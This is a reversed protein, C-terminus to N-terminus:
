LGHVMGFVTAGFVALLIATVFNPKFGTRLCSIQPDRPDYFVVVNAGIPYDSELFSRGGGIPDPFSVRCSSYTRGNLQYTYAVAVRMKPELRSLTRAPLHTVTGTTQPWRRSLMGVVLDYTLMGGIIFLLCIFRWDQAMGIAGRSGKYNYSGGGPLLLNNFISASHIKAQMRTAYRALAFTYLLGM